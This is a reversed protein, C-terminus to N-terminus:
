MIALGKQYIATSIVSIPDAIRRLYIIFSERPMDFQPFLACGPRLPLVPRHRPLAIAYALTWYRRRALRGRGARVMARQTWTRLQHWVEAEAM